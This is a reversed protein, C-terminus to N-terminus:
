VKMQWNKKLNSHIKKVKEALKQDKKEMAYKQTEELVVTIDNEAKPSLKPLSRIVTFLLYKTETYVQEPKAEQNDTSNDSDQYRNLL